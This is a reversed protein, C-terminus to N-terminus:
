ARARTDGVQRSTTVSSSVAGDGCPQEGVDAQRGAQAPHVQAKLAKREDKRVALREVDEHRAQPTGLARPAASARAVSGAGVRAGSRCLGLMNQCDELRGKPKPRQNLKVHSPKGVKYWWPARLGCGCGRM